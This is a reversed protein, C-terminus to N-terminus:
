DEARKGMKFLPQVSFDEESGGALVDQIQAPNFGYIRRDVAGQEGSQLASKFHFKGPPLGLLEFLCHRKLLCSSSSSVIACSSRTAGGPLRARVSNMLLAM